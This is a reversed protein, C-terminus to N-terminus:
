IYFSKNKLISNRIISDIKNKYDLNTFYLFSNPIVNCDDREVVSDMKGNVQNETFNTVKVDKM